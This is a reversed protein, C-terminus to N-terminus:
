KAGTMHSKDLSAIAVVCIFSQEVGPRAPMPLIHTMVDLDGLKKIGSVVLNDKTITQWVKYKAVLLARCFEDLNQVLKPLPDANFITVNVKEESEIHYWFITNGSRMIAFQGSGCSLKIQKILETGKVPLNQDSASQLIVHEDPTRDMWKKLATM